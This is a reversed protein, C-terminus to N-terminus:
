SWHRLRSFRSFYCTGDMGWSRDDVVVSNACPPMPPTGGRGSNGAGWFEFDDPDIVVVEDGAVFARTLDLKFM